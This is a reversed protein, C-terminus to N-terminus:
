ANANQAIWDPVSIVSNDDSNLDICEAASLSQAGDLTLLYSYFRATLMTVAGANPTAEMDSFYSELEDTM